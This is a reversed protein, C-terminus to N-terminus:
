YGRLLVACLIVAAALSVTLVHLLQSRRQLKVLAQPLAQADVPVRGLLAIRRPRVALQQVAQIIIMMVVLLLKLGLVRVFIPPVRGGALATAYLVNMVNYLGTLLVLGVAPWLVSRFRAELSLGVRERERISTARTLAPTVVLLQFLLGGIWAVAALLHIWLILLQFSLQM